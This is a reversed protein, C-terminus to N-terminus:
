SKAGDASAGAVDQKVETDVTAPVPTPDMEGGSAVAASPAVAPAFTAPAVPNNPPKDIVHGETTLETPPPDFIYRSHVLKNLMDAPIPDAKTYDDIYVDIGDMINFRPHRFLQKLAARKIPEDVTPKFFPAFESEFTLSEVPPLPAPAAASASPLPAVEHSIKASVSAPDGMAPPPSRAADLKRQSWRRLSLPQPPPGHPDRHDTKM